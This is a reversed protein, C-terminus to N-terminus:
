SPVQDSIPGAASFVGNKLEPVVYWPANETLGRSPAYQGSAWGYMAAFSLESSPADSAETCAANPAAVFMKMVFVGSWIPLFPGSAFGHM